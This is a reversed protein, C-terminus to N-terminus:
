NLDDSTKFGLRKLMNEVVNITPKTAPKKTCTDAVILMRGTNGEACYDRIQQVIGRITSELEFEDLTELDVEGGHERCVVRVAM